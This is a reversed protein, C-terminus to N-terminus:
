DLLSAHPTGRLASEVEDYNKILEHLPGSTLKSERPLPDFKAEVGLFAAVKELLSASFGTGGDRSEFMEDYDIELFREHDAFFASLFARDAEFEDLKRVLQHSSLAVPGAGGSKGPDGSEGLLSGAPGPRHYVGTKRARENSVLRRLHNRRTVHLAHWGQLHTEEIVAPVSRVPQWTRYVVHLCERKADLVLAQSGRHAGRANEVYGRFLELSHEPQCLSPDDRLRSELYRFYSGGSNFIEPLDQVAPHTSLMSRFVTTGCRARGFMMCVRPLGEDDERGTSPM